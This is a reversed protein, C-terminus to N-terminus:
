VILRGCDISARVILDVTLALGDFSASSVTQFVSILDFQSFLKRSQEKPEPDAALTLVMLSRM